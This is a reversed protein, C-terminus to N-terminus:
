RNLVSSVCHLKQNSKQLKSNEKFLAHNVSNLFIFPCMRKHKKVHWFLPRTLCAYSRLFLTLTTVFNEILQEESYVIIFLTKSIVMGWVLFCANSTTGSLVSSISSHVLPLKRWFTRCSSSPPFVRFEQILLVM